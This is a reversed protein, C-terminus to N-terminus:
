LQNVPIKIYRINNAEAIPLNGAQINVQISPLLLKPTDSLKDKAKRAVIFEERTFNDNVMINSNRQETISSVCCEIRGVPPYDHATFVSTNGSLTFLKQISDYLDEASGGPFDTRATGVDPMFLTDGAFVNNEIHYSVCAPTHGPTNIVKVELSGINIVENGKLLRDFKFTDLEPYNVANFVPRWFKIVEDIREGMAIKGGLKEKLYHSATLHDAHAHTELIWVVQLNNENIFTIIEDASHSSINGASMNYNLVPDIIACKLTTEDSVVYTFTSTEKDFFHNIKM